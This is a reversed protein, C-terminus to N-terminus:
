CRWVNPGVHMIEFFYNSSPLRKKGSVDIYENNNEVCLRYKVLHSYMRCCTFVTKCQRVPMDLVLQSSISSRCFNCTNRAQGYQLSVIGTLRVVDNVGIFVYVKVPIDLM